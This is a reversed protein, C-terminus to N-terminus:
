NDGAVTEQDDANTRRQLEWWRPLNPNIRQWFVGHYSVKRTQRVAFLITFCLMALFTQSWSPFDNLVTSASLLVFLSAWALELARAMRLVNCFLFFHAVIFAVALGLAVDMRSLLLSGAAGVLLVAVDAASLRFGPNFPAKTAM